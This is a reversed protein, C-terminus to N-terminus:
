RNTSSPAACAGPSRRPNAAASTTTACGRCFSSIAVRCPGSGPSDLTQSMGSLKLTRLAQQLGSNVIM